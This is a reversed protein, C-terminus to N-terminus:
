IMALIATDPVVLIGGGDNIKLTVLVRQSNAVMTSTTTLVTGFTDVDVTVPMGANSGIVNVTM